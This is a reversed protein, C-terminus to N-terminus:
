ESNTCEVPNFHEWFNFILYLQNKVKSVRKFYRLIGLSFWKQLNTVVTFLQTFNYLFCRNNRNKSKTVLLYQVFPRIRNRVSLSTKQHTDIYEYIKSLVPKILTFSRMKFQDLGSESVGFVKDFIGLQDVILMDTVQWLEIGIYLTHVIYM